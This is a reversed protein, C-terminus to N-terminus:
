NVECELWDADLEDILLKAEEHSFMLPVVAFGIQRCFSGNPLEDEGLPLKAQEFADYYSEIELKLCSECISQGSHWSSFRRDRKPIARSINSPISAYQRRM